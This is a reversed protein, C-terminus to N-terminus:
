NACSIAIGFCLLGSGLVRFLLDAPAFLLSLTKLPAFLLQMAWFFCFFIVTGALVDEPVDDLMKKIAGIM